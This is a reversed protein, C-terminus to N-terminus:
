HHAANGTAPSLFRWLCRLPVGSGERQGRYSALLCRAKANRGRPVRCGQEILLVCERLDIWCREIRTTETSNGSRHVSKSVSDRHPGRRTVAAYAESATAISRCSSLASAASPGPSSSRRARYWHPDLYWSPKPDSMHPPSVSAPMPNWSCGSAFPAARRRVATEDAGLVGISCCDNLKGATGESISTM